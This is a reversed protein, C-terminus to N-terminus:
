RFGVAIYSGKKFVKINSKLCGTAEWIHLSLKHRKKWTYYSFSLPKWKSKNYKTYRQTDIAKYLESALMDSM